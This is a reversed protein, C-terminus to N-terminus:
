PISRYKLFGRWSLAFSRYVNKRPQGTLRWRAHAEEFPLRRRAAHRLARRFIPEAPGGMARKSEGHALIVYVQGRKDDVSRFLRQAVILQRHSERLDGRDLLALAIGWKVFALPGRQGLEGYVSEATRMFKLAESTRGLMRLASGQGCNAYAWGFRDGSSRFFTAAEKYLRLSDSPRGQMRFTGGLGCRVYAQGAADGVRRYLHASRKLWRQADDFRALFRATTGLAWAAHAMGAFDKSKAYRQYCKRLQFFAGLFNGEGRLALATGCEADISESSDKRGCKKAQRYYTMAEQFREQQRYQDAIRLLAEQKGPVDQLKKYFSLARKASQVARNPQGVAQQACSLLDWYEALLTFSFSAPYRKKSLLNLADVPRFRELFRRARGLDFLFASSDNPINSVAGLKRNDPSREKM